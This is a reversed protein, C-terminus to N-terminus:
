KHKKILELTRNFEETSLKFGYNLRDDYSLISPVITNLEVSKDIYKFFLDTPGPYEDQPPYTCIKSAIYCREYFEYLEEIEDKVLKIIELCKNYSNIEAMRESFRIIYVIKYIKLKKRHNFYKKFSDYCDKWMDIEYDHELKLLRTEIDDNDSKIMTRQIAHELEHLIIHLICLNCRLYYNFYNSFEKDFDQSKIYSYINPLCVGIEKGKLYGLTTGAYHNKINTNGIHINNISDINNENILIKCILLTAENDLFKHEKSYNYIIDLVNEM